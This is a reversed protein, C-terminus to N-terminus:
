RLNGVVELALCDSPAEIALGTSEGLAPLAHPVDPPSPADVVSGDCGLRGLGLRARVRPRRRRGDRASRRDRDHEADWQPPPGRRVDGRPAQWPPCLASRDPRSLAVSDRGRLDPCHKRERHWVGACESLDPRSEGSIPLADHLSLTYIETTATDNFFFFLSM